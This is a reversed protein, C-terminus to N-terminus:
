SSRACRFGHHYNPLEPNSRHRCTSRIHTKNSDWLGGRFVRRRGSPPGTPNSTFSGNYDAYWDAVWEYVNGAMDMVGYPSAGAEVCEAYMAKTVETRDMWYTDPSLLCVSAQSLSSGPM